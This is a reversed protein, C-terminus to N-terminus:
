FVASMTAIIYRLMVPNLLFLNFGKKELGSNKLHNSTFNKLFYFGRVVESMNKM